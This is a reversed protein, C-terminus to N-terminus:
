GLRKQGRSRASLLAKRAEEETAYGGLAVAILGNHPQVHTSTQYGQEQLSAVLKNANAEVSFAGGIILFRVVYAEPTSVENEDMEMVENSPRVVEAIPVNTTLAETSPEEVHQTVVEEVISSHAVPSYTAEDPQTNWLPNGGFLTEQSQPNSLLYAGALTLPIAVVAAVRGLKVRLPIVKGQHKKEESGFTTTDESEVIPELQLENTQSRERAVLPISAHGFSQMMREFESDAMFRLQGDAELYLRGLGSLEVRNGTKLDKQIFLVLADVAQQARAFSLGHRSMLENAVVGDNSTLRPNFHVDRSPPVIQCKSEDYWAPRSNCVFGGLGPLMVCDHDWFLGPLLRIVDQPTFSPAHRLSDM